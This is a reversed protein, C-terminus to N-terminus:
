VCFAWLLSTDHAAYAISLFTYLVIRLLIAAITAITIINSM